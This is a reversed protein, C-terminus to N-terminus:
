LKFKKLVSGARTFPSTYQTEGAIIEGGFVSTTPTPTPTASGSPTPSPTTTVSRSPTATHTPTPTLSSVVVQRSSSPTPTPTMSGTVSPTPTVAKAAVKAMVEPTQHLVFSTTPQPLLIKQLKDLQDETIQAPTPVIPPEGSIEPTATMERKDASKVLMHMFLLSILPLFGGAIFALIRKHASVDTPEVGMMSFLPSVLDVWQKFLDTDTHVYQFCYFINGTLQIFTVICFPAYVAKRMGVSMASLSSLAAVEIAFSLYLAWSAPNNLGYFTTVHSISVFAVLLIPILFSLTIITRKNQEFFQKM